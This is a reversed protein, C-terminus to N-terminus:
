RGQSEATGVGRRISVIVGNEATVVTRVREASADWGRSIVTHYNPGGPIWTTREVTGDETAVEEVGDPEGCLALAVDGSMGVTLRGMRIAATMGCTMEPHLAIVTEVAAAVAGARTPHLSAADIWGEVFKEQRRDMREIKAWPGEQQAVSIPTYWPAAEVAKGSDPSDYLAVKGDVDWPAPGRVYMKSACAAAVVVVSVWVVTRM